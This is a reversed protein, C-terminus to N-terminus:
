AGPAAGRVEGADAPAAGRAAPGGGGSATKGADPSSGGPEDTASVAAHQGISGRMYRARRASEKSAASADGAPAQAAPLLALPSPEGCLAEPVWSSATCNM